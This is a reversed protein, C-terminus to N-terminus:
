LADNCLIKRGKTGSTAETLPSLVHSRRTWMGRYYQVMGIFARTKTTASTQGIDMICQVKKPDPKIGERTIICCIYIIDKLGFSCKPAIVKLDAARLRGFIIIM